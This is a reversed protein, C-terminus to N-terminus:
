QDQLSIDCVCPFHKEAGRPQLVVRGCRILMSGPDERSVFILKYIFLRLHIGKTGQVSSMATQGDSDSNPYGANGGRGRSSSSHRVASSVDNDDQWRSLTGHVPKLSSLLYLPHCPTGDQALRLAHLTRAGQRSLLRAVELGRYRLSRHPQGYAFVIM